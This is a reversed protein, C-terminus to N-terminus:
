FFKKIFEYTCNKHNKFKVLENNLFLAEICVRWSTHLRQYM